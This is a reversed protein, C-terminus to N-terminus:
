KRVKEFPGMVDGTKFQPPICCSRSARNGSNSWTRTPWGRFQAMVVRPNQWEGNEDWRIPGVITSVENKHLWAALTKHDLSKTATV